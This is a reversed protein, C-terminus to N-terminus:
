QRFVARVKDLFGEDLEYNKESTLEAFRELLERQEASLNRPVTVNVVVKLAGRGYGQLAPVGRNAYVKVEGPQTGPRLTIEIDGDLAPVGVTTGVAAEIM